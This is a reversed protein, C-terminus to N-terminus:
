GRNNGRYNENHYYNNTEEYHEEEKLFFTYFDVKDPGLPDEGDDPYTRMELEFIKMKLTGMLNLIMQHGIIM